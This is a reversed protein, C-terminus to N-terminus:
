RRTFAAGLIYGVGLCVVGTTVVRLTTAWESILRPSPRGPSLPSEPGGDELRNVPATDSYFGLHQSLAGQLADVGAREVYFDAKVRSYDMNRTPVSESTLVAVAAASPRGCCSVIVRHGQMHLQRCFEVNRSIPRMRADILADLSFAVTVPSLGVWEQCFSEVQKPVGLVHFDAPTLQLMKCPIGDKLMAGIVGSTYFEGKMDQSLQTQGEEIIRACYTELETGSRFCYCGTNAHDSIKVKEMIETVLNESSRCEGQREQDETGVRVYSYIPKSQTDHFTFTANYEESVDRYMSVIDATYFCDGDCLICPRARDVESLGSRLGYLVTEAAGRTPGPLEVLISRPYKESVVERMFVDMDLFMPNFVIILTDQTALKLNDLVWLIMEKGLIRVFPKPRSYGEQQFRNGIGGLPVIINM